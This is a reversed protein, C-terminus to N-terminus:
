ANAGVRRLEQEVVEFLLRAADTTANTAPPRLQVVGEPLERGKLVSTALLLESLAARQRRAKKGVLSLRLALTVAHAADVKDFSTAHGTM